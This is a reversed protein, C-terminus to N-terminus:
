KQVWQRDIGTLSNRDTWTHHDDRLNIFARTRPATRASQKRKLLFRVQREHCWSKSDIRWSKSDNHESLSGRQGMRLIFIIEESQIASIVCTILLLWHGLSTLNSSRSLKQVMLWFPMIIGDGGIVMIKTKPTNYCAVCGGWLAATPHRLARKPLQCVCEWLLSGSNHMPCLKHSPTWNKTCVPPFRLAWLFGVLTSVSDAFWM